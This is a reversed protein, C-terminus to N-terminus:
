CVTAELQRLVWKEGSKTAEFLYGTGCVPAEPPANSVYAVHVRVHVAAGKVEAYEFLINAPFPKGRHDNVFKEFPIVPRDTGVIARVRALDPDRTLITAVRTQDLRDDLVARTAERVRRDHHLHACASTALLILACLM